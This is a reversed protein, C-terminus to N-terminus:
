CSWEQMPRKKVINNTNMDWGLNNTIITGLLRTSDIVYIQQENIELRTTFQHKETYNFMM